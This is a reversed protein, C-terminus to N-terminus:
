CFDLLLKQYLIYKPIQIRNLVINKDYGKVLNTSSLMVESSTFVSSLEKFNNKETKSQQQETKKFNVFTCANKIQNGVPAQTSSIPFYLNKIEKKICCPLMLLGILIVLLFYYSTKHISYM